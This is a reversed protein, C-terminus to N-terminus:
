RLGEMLREGLRGAGISSASVLLDRDALWAHYTHLGGECSGIFITRGGIEAEAHGTVGGAQSCAGEDYSDRWDRFVDDALIGTRVAVVAAFVFDGSQPDVAIAAAFADALAALGPDSAADAEGEPSPEVTLGAVTAPLVDLLARDVPVLTM